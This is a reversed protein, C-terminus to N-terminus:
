SSRAVAPPDLDTDTAGLYCVRNRGDRKARYLSDDAVRLLAVRELGQTPAMAIGISVSIRDTIGPALSILTSDTRARIREAIMLATESSVDRLLV